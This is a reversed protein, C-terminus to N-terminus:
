FYTIIMCFGNGGTGGAGSNAGNASAGGGGGGCAVGGNGGRGGTVTGAANGSGGGTGGWAMFPFYPSTLTYSGNVGLGGSSSGGAYSYVNFGTNTTRNVILGGNNITNATDIGGGLQGATLPRMTYAQAATFANPNNLPSGYTSTQLMGYVSGQCAFGSGNATNTGGSANGGGVVVIKATGGSGNGGLYSDGGGSGNAGNTDNVTVAAGGNGGTGIWINETTGFANADMKNVFVGGTGGGGGGYRASAAAGRRGSGGGGGGGFLFVEVQKAGAPKTWVGSTLFTQIDIVAAGGGGSYQPINLTSGVLTAAGSTGTTTLTITDQKANWSTSNGGTATIVGNVDLKTAPIITGIGVNTGDDYILSNSVGTVTNKKPIYGATLNGYLIDQGVYTISNFAPNMTLPGYIWNYTLPQYVALYGGNASSIGEQSGSIGELVIQSSSNSKVHLTSSPSNTGIGLRNNTDDWFFNANDQAITTGNSFLVSGSTLSPLTFKGNFASWDSSSLAGRNTASATPLNFTHTDTASSINFDTGSTGVALYQVQSTLGNLATLGTSFTTLVESLNSNETHLTITRGGTNVFIRVALRDTILLTTQPVPISTFYQDVTTGNTIGEPNLSDSAILTFANTVDVKYLEAYFSPSGGGSSANFYFEVNWNGGPINLQSPDGANTIFSAIYGNGAGNTRTFNTGAGFIPTRSMQYYTVGGFTGQSISGNLYYNFSSGGGTSTPFTALTGDGRIYQSSVGAGTVAITGSTTIPSSSVTFASPMSLGVSTVTGTGTPITWTRDATLDYTTGNITLTRSTPVYGSIVSSYDPINLTNSVFTAPGSSGTTTLTIANQKANWTSASAIRSDALTGTWGLTLSVGQLLATNPTGGLTLTVNTDNVRTLANPFISPIDSLFAVTGNANQFTYVNNGVGSFNLMPTYVGNSFRVAGLGDNYFLLQNTVAGKIVVGSDYFELTGYDLNNTDYGYLVGIKANLLSANGATLVQNLTPITATPFTALSGDGRIYQSTTGTPIPYYTSAATTSLLYPSLALASIFPNIGDDGDNILDSTKTPINSGSSLVFPSVDYYLDKEINGNGGIFQLNLTYFQSTGIVSYSTIKYHGFLNPENQQSLLIESGNLYNLFITVNSDSLDIASVILQTIASFPTNDGAGGNFAITKPVDPIITFRFSLQGGISIKANTNLYDVLTRAMYNVTNNNGARTGLFLDDDTVSRTVPYYNGIAM